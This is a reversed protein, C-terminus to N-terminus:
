RGRQRAATALLETAHDRATSSEPQGSLMRSLEVVRSRDDLVTATAVTRGAVEAKRVAVHSDAFAAVQPLHTVVLVQHDAALAALARGVAVAAAGGIGADVEDFVLTPPADTLVLRAALMTRALEGGSAVKALPLAPEGANASFLFRVEDAPDDGAVEVEFRASPLALERLHAEVASALRPAARRRAAAVVAAAEAWESTAAVRAVELEGVRQDHSELQALRAAAEQAFALVDGLTEGYKRRLDGLVQRRQVVAALREPDDEIAEAAGRLDAAAETVEAQLARLREGLAALAPRGALAAGAIGVADAAGGDASLAEYAVGAAERAADADALAAEEAALADDEDLDTLGAAAIEAIQFRLLDVERARARADGGLRRLEDDIEHIRGRAAAMPGLDAGAFADLAGRQVAPALLSQHAHQGHLDVLGAGLESLATVAAMRGDVYARSRSGGRVSRALIREGEATTFRGEVLAEDAGPRVLHPEARGGVLLEIAEVLLTKGAGTEGTVATMGPGLVLTLDAILGLERVRIETLM